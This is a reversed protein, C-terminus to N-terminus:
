VLSLVVYHHDKGPQTDSLPKESGGSCANEDDCKNEHEQNADCMPDGSSVNSLETSTSIEGIM